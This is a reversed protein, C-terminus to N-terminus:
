SITLHQPLVKKALYYLLKPYWHIHLENEKDFLFSNEESSHLSSNTRNFFKKSNDLSKSNFTSIRSKNINIVNSEIVSDSPINKLLTSDEASATSPILSLSELVRLFSGKLSYYLRVPFFSWHALTQSDIIAYCSVVAGDIVLNGEATLPAYVGGDIVRRLQSVSDLVVEGTRADPILLYDGERIQGAFVTGTTPKSTGLRELRLPNDEKRVVLLLHSPTLTLETGKSTRILLFEATASASQHIM